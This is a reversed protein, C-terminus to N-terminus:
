RSSDRKPRVNLKNVLRREFEPLPVPVGNTLGEVARDLTTFEVSHPVLQYRGEKYVYDVVFWAIDANSVERVPEMFGLSQRFARDIVVAMKKGWRRLTPVKIQLQPMLRKPGSSRFDPRRVESPFPVGPKNWKRILALEPPMARGSFYVAQLELACWQLVPGTTNALVMDIKGVAAETDEAELGNETPSTLFPVEAILRPETTGILQQSVWSFITNGEKFRNPCITVLIDDTAFAQGENNGYSRLSCVGGAKNCPGSRFPCLRDRQPTNDIRQLLEPTLDEAAHGYLEAISFRNAAM